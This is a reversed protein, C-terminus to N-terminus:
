KKADDESQIEMSYVLLIENNNLKQDAVYEETAASIVSVRCDTKEGELFAMLEASVESFNDEVWYAQLYLSNVKVYVLYGGVDSNVRTIYVIKGSVEAKGNETRYANQPNFVPEPWATTTADDLLKVGVATKEGTKADVTYTIEAKSGRGFFVAEGSSQIQSAAMTFKMLPAGEFGGTPKLYIKTQSNTASLSAALLVVEGIVKEGEPETGQNESGSTSSTSGTSNGETNPINCSTMFTMLSFIMIFSLILSLIQKM